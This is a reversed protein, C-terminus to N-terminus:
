LRYYDFIEQQKNKAYDGFKSFHSVIAMKQELLRAPIETTNSRRALAILTQAVEIANSEDSQGLLVDVTAGIAEFAEVTSMRNVFRERFNEFLWEDEIPDKSWDSIANLLQDNFNM